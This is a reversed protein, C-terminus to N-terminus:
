LLEGYLPKYQNPKKYYDPDAGKESNLCREFGAKNYKLTLIGRSLNYLRAKRMYTALMNNTFAAQFLVYAGCTVVPEHNQDIMYLYVDDKDIVPLHGIGDAYLKDNTFAMDFGTFAVTKAGLYQIVFNICFETVNYRSTISGWGPFYLNEIEVLTKSKSDGLNYLYIDNGWSRLVDPHTVTAALLVGNFKRYDKFAFCSKLIDSADINVTIDPYIENSYLVPFATDVAILLLRERHQKIFDLHETLSPGAGCIFPIRNAIVPLRRVKKYDNKQAMNIAANRVWIPAFYEVTKQSARDFFNMIAETTVEKEM